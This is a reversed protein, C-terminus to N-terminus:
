EGGSLRDTVECILKTQKILLRIFFVTFINFENLLLVDYM